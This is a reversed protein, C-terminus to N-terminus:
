SISETAAAMTLAIGTVGRCTAGGGVECNGLLWRVVM